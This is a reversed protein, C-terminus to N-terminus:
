PGGGALRALRLWERDLLAGIATYAAFDMYLEASALYADEGLASVPESRGEAYRSLRIRVDHSRADLYVSGVAEPDTAFVRGDASAADTAQLALLRTDELLNRRPANVRGMRDSGYLAVSLGVVPPDYPDYATLAPVLIADVGLTRAVQQAEGPTTIRGIENARMAEITRNVPVVSIGRVQAAAGALADGVALPDVFGAGSENAAPAVAWLVDGGTSDYPSVLAAPPQLQPGQAACGGIGVGGVVGVVWAGGMLGIGIAM